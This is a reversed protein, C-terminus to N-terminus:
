SVVATPPQENCIVLMPQKLNKKKTKEMHNQSGREVIKLKRQPSIDNIYRQTHAHM